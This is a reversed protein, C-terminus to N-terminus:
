LGMILLSIHGWMLILNIIQIKENIKETLFVDDHSKAKKVNSVRVMAVLMLWERSRVFHMSFQFVSEGTM